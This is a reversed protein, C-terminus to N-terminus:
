NCQLALATRTLGVHIFRMGVVFKRVKGLFSFRM